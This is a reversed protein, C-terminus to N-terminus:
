GGEAGLRRLIDKDHYDIKHLPMVLSSAINSLHGALRTLHQTMLAWPISQRAPIDETILGDLLAECRRSVDRETLMVEQALPTDSAALARSTMDFMRVIEEYVAQFEAHSGCRLLGQEQRAAADLMQKCYDGLREADKVVSMLALCAPLDGWGHTAGYEVLGKRIARETKNIGIDMAQVEGRLPEEPPGSVAQQWVIQLMRRAQDVMSILDNYMRRLPDKSQLVALLERFM